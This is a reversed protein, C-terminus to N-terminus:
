AAVEIRLPRAGEIRRKLREDPTETYGTAIEAFFRRTEAVSHKALVTTGTSLYQAGEVVDNRIGRVFRGIRYGISNM